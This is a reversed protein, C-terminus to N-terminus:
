RAFGETLGTRDGDGGMLVVAARRRRCWAAVDSEVVISIAAPLFLILTPPLFIRPVSLLLILREQVSRGWAARAPRHPCFRMARGAHM